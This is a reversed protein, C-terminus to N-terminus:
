GQGISQAARKRRSNEDDLMGSFGDRLAGRRSMLEKLMLMGREESVLKVADPDGAMFRDILMSPDAAFSLLEFQEAINMQGDSSFRAQARDFAGQGRALERAYAAEWDKKAQQEPTLQTVSDPTGTGQSSGPATTSPPPLNATLMDFQVKRQSSTRGVPLAENRAMLSAARQEQQDSGHEKISATIRQAGLSPDGNGVAGLIAAYETSTTVSQLVMVMRDALNGRAMMRQLLLGKEEPNLSALHNAALQHMDDFVATGDILKAVLADVQASRQRYADAQPILSGIGARAGPGIDALIQAGKATNGLAIYVDVVRAADKANGSAAADRVWKEMLRRQEDQPLAAFREIVAPDVSGNGLFFNDIANPLIASTNTASNPAELGTTRTTTTNNQVTTM